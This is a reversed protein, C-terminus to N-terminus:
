DGGIEEVIDGAAKEEVIDGAVKEEIALKTMMSAKRTVHHWGALSTVREADDPYGGFKANGALNVLVDRIEDPLFVATEKTPSRDIKAFWKSSQLAAHQDSMSLILAKAKAARKALAKAMPDDLYYTACAEEFQALVGAPVDLPEADVPDDRHLRADAARCAPRKRIKELRKRM